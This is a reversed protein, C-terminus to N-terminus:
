NCNQYNKVKDFDDIFEIKGWDYYLYFSYKGGQNITIDSNTCINTDKGNIFFCPRKILNALKVEIKNLNGFSNKNISTLINKHGNSIKHNSLIVENNASTITLGENQYIIEYEYMVNGFFKKQFLIPFDIKVYCQENNEANKMIREFGDILDQFSERIINPNTKYIDLEKKQFLNSFTNQTVKSLMPVTIYLVLILSIVLIIIGVIKNLAVM